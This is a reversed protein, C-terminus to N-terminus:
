EWVNGAMDHAGCPSVGTPFTGVPSTRGLGLEATNARGDEWTGWPYGGKPHKAAQKWEQETPLRYPREMQVALWNAYAEAEYWSVGVVPQNPRNFRPDSWYRPAEWHGNDRARQGDASWFPNALATYGGKAVFYGYQANTIPYRGIAWNGLGILEPEPTCVGPRPDGLVALADAAEVRQRPTLVATGLLAVLQQRLTKLVRQGVEEDRELQTRGIVAAMEGALWVRHWGAVDGAAPTTPPLVREVADLAIEWSDRNHVLTGTALNLVERWTDGMEALKAAQRGFRRPSALHCAALYEQFTRHPFSYVREERGGKGVLLHAREETYQVFQEAKAYSGLYRKAIQILESEAMDASEQREPAQSHAEWAIEWLLQELDMQKIGLQTLLDPMEQHPSEREKHKQWRLLLTEVCSQYLKAREDPLTGRYTQVLAMITLLMPNPALPRLRGNTAEQLQRIYRETQEASLEGVSHLATYWRQIFRNIQEESFPQLTTIHAGPPAEEPVFSLARCTAIWRCGGLAGEQLATIAQWVTRRQDAPVEDVGDLLWILHGKEGLRQLAPVATGLGEATLRAVAFHWLALPSHPNFETRAFDRLEISLPIPPADQWSHTHALIPGDNAAEVWSLQTQWAADQGAAGSALLGAMHRTLTTKGSGPDGLLITHPHYFIHALAARYTWQQKEVTHTGATALLDVYIRDLPVAQREADQGSPDLPGLRLRTSNRILAQLYPQLLDADGSEPTPYNHIHVTEATIQDRGISDGAVFDRGISSTPHENTTM